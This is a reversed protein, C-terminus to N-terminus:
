PAQVVWDGESTRCVKLGASSGEDSVLRCENSAGARQALAAMKVRTKKGAGDRWQLNIGQDAASFVVQDWIPCSDKGRKFNLSENFTTGSSDTSSLLLQSRCITTPRYNKGIFYNIVAITEGNRSKAVKIEVNYDSKMKFNSGAIQAQWLGLYQDVVEPAGTATMAQASAGVGEGAFGFENGAASAAWPLFGVFASMWVVQRLM